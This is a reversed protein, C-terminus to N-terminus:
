YPTFMWSSVESLLQFLSGCVQGFGLPQASHPAGHLGGRVQVRFDGISLPQPIEGPKIGEVAAVGRGLDYSSLYYM